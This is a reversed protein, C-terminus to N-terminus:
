LREQVDELRPAVAGDDVLETLEDLAPVALGGLRDVRRDLTGDREQRRGPLEHLIGHGRLVDTLLRLTERGALLLENEDRHESDSASSSSLTM